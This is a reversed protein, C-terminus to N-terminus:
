YKAGMTSCVGEFNANKQVVALHGKFEVVNRNLVSTRPSIWASERYSFVRGWGVGLELSWNYAGGAHFRQGHEFVGKETVGPGTAGEVFMEREGYKEMAYGWQIGENQNVQQAVVTSGTGLPGAGDGVGGDRGGRCRDARGVRMDFSTDTASWQVARAGADGNDVGCLVVEGGECGGGLGFGAGVRPAMHRCACCAGHQVTAQVCQLSYYKRNSQVTVSDPLKLAYYNEDSFAWKLCLSLSAWFAAKLQWKM